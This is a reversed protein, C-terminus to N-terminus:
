KNEPFLEDYEEGKEGVVRDRIEAVDSELSMLSGELEILTGRVRTIDKSLAWGIIAITAIILWEALSGPAMEDLM